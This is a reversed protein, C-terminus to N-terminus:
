GTKSVVKEQGESEYKSPCKILMKKSKFIKGEFEGIAVVKDVSQINAPPPGSYEVRATNGALDVIKFRMLSNKIDHSLTSHVIDGVLHLNKEKSRLAESVTVYPSSNSLFAYFMLSLGGIALFISVASNIKM